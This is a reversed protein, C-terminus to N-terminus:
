KANGKANRLKAPAQNATLTPKGTKRNFARMSNSRQQRQEATVLKPLYNLGARMEHDIM